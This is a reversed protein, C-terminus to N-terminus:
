PRIGSRTAVPRDGDVHGRHRVPRVGDGLQDALSQAPAQGPREVHGEDRQPQAVDLFPLIPGLGEGVVPGALHPEGVGVQDAQEVAGDLGLDFVAREDSTLPMDRLWPMRQSRESAASSSPNRGLSSAKAAARAYCPECVVAMRGWCVLFDLITWFSRM